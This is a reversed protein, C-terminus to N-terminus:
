GTTGLERLRRENIQRQQAAAEARSMKKPKGNKINCTRVLALLRNLHWHQCEMPITFAIMWYYLLEATIVETNKKEGPVESFWAATMPDNIYADIQDYHEATLQSFVEPPVNPNQNMARIYWMLQELTKDKTALFPKKFFSEWKSLSVLSHELMLTVSIPEVFQNTEEDFMEETEVVLELM